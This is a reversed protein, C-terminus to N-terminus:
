FLSNTGSVDTLHMRSFTVWTAGHNLEEALHLLGIKKTKKAVHLQYDCKLFTGERLVVIACKCWIHLVQIKM